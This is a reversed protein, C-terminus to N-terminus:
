SRNELTNIESNIREITTDISRKSIDLKSKITDTDPMNCISHFVYGILILTLWINGVLAGQLIEIASNDIKLIVHFLCYATYMIALSIISLLSFFASKRITNISKHWSRFLDQVSRISLRSEQCSSRIFMLSRRASNREIQVPFGLSAALDMSVSATTQINETLNNPEAVKPEKRPRRIDFIKM